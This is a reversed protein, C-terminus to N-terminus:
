DPIEVWLVGEEEVVEFREVGAAAPLSLAAGTRVDFRAGHLPCRVAHGELTGSSLSADAHSCVDSVAHFLGGVRAVLIREMEVEFAAMGGEPIQRAEGLRYRM